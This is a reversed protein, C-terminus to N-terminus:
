IRLLIEESLNKSLKPYAKIEIGMGLSDLYEVLTSIKIDKRKELRSVSSQSFSPIQQQTLNAQERLQALSITLMEQEAKLQARKISESSMNSEMMKIANKMYVFYASYHM